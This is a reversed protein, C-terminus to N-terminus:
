DLRSSLLNYEGDRIFTTPKFCFCDVVPELGFPHQSQMM